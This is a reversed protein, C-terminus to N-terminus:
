IAKEAFSQQPDIYKRLVADVVVRDDESASRYALAVARERDSLGDDDNTAPNSKRILDQYEYIFEPCPAGCEEFILMKDKDSKAREFDELFTYHWAKVKLVADVDLGYLNCLKGLSSSDIRNIGREWNSVAQYSVVLKDAVEQQSLGTHNRAIKMTKAIDLTSM